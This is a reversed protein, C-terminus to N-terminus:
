RYEAGHRGIPSLSLANVSLIPNVQGLPRRPTVVHGPGTEPATKRGPNRLNTTIRQMVKIDELDVLMKMKRM